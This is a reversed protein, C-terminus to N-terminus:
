QAPEPRCVSNGSQDGPAAGDIRFGRADTLAALDLTSPTATGYVVYSSGSNARSNNDAFPAAIIADDRGDGNVDGAGSVSYGSLDGAAAGDLRLNAQTLLDVPAAHAGAPLGAATGLAFAVLTITTRARRTM